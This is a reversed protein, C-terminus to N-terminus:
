LTVIEGDDALYEKLFSVVEGNFLQKTMLLIIAYTGSMEEPIYSTVPVVVDM